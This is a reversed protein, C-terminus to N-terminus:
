SELKVLKSGFYLTGFYMVPIHPGIKAHGAAINAVLADFVPEALVEIIPWRTITLKSIENKWNCQYHSCQRFIHL